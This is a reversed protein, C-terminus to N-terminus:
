FQKKESRKKLTSPSLQSIYIREKEKNECVVFSKPLEYNISVIKNDKQAQTLFRRTHVSVTARDMDFIGVIDKEKVITEEGLHLYM